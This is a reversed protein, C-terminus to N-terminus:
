CIRKYEAMIIYPVQGKLLQVGGGSSVCEKMAFFIEKKAATQETSLYEKLLRQLQKRKEDSMTYAVHRNKFRGVKCLILVVETNDKVIEVAGSTLNRFVKFDSKKFLM